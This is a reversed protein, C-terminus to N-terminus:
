NTACKFRLRANGAPYAGGSAVGGYTGWSAFGSAMDVEREEQSLLVARAGKKKCFSQAEDYAAENACATGGCYASGQASILYVGNEAEMVGSTATCASLFILFIAPYTKKM